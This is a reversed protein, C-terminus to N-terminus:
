AMFGLRDLDGLFAACDDCVQKEPIEPFEACINHIIDTRNIPQGCMKWITIGVENLYCLRGSDPDFLFAGDDEERLVVEQRAWIKNDSDSM